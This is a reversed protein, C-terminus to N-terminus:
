AAETAGSADLNVDVAVPLPVNQGSRAAQLRQLEHLAKYLSRDLHSEYRNIKDLMDTSPLMHERRARELKKVGKEILLEAKQQTYSAQYLASHLLEQVSKSEHGAVVALAERLRGATWHTYDEVEDEVPVYPLEDERLSFKESIEDVAWLIASAVHGQLPQKNKMELFRNILRARQKAEKIDDRLEELSKNDLEYKIINAESNETEGAILEREYRSTHGLRWLLVAVREALVTELHGSPKLSELVGDRHTEWDEANELLPIVVTEATAGHRL